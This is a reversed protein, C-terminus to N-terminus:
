LAVSIGVTNPASLPSATRYSYSFTINKPNEEDNGLKLVFDLGANLGTLANDRDEDLGTFIGGVYDYGVHINLLNNYSYEAGLSLVDKSFSNSGFAFSPTLRNMEDLMYDYSISMVLQTPIEFAQARYEYSQEFDPNEGGETPLRIDDGDGSFSMGPGINRIVVGFKVENNEGTVYQIGADVAVGGANLEALSQSLLKITGGASISTTFAKAYSLGLVTTNYAFTGLSGADTNFFDTRPIDDGYNYSNFSLGLVAESKLRYALAASSFNSEGFWSVNSIGAHLGHSNKALGAPNLFTADIGTVGATSALGWGSSSAWPNVLLEPLGAQGSRQPNGAFLTSAFGVICVLRLMSKKM